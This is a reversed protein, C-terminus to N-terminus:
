DDDYGDEDADSSPADHHAGLSTVIKFNFKMGVPKGEPDAVGPSAALNCVEMSEIPFAMCRRLARARGEEPLSLPQLPTTWSSHTGGRENQMLLTCAAEPFEGDILVCRAMLGRSNLSLMVLVHAADDCTQSEICLLFSWHSSMRTSEALKEFSGGNIITKREPQGSSRHRVKLKHAEVLHEVLKSPTTTHKFKCERLHYREDYSANYDFALLSLPCPVKSLACENSVHDRISSYPVQQGCGKTCALVMTEVVKEMMLNRSLHALDARCSPCHDLKPKCDNCIIHGNADQLFPPMMHVLCVPCELSELVGADGRSGGNKQRKAADAKDLEELRHILERKSGRKELGRTSCEAALAVVTWKSYDSMKAGQDRCGRRSDPRVETLRSDLWPIYGYVIM